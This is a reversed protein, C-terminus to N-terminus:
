SGAEIPLFLDKHAKLDRDVGRFAIKNSRECRWYLHQFCVWPDCVDRTRQRSDSHEIQGAHDRPRQRRHKEGILAGLDDLDLRQATIDSPAAPLRDARRPIRPV